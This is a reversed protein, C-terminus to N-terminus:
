CRAAMASAAWTRRRFSRCRPAGGLGWRRRASRRHRTRSCRSTPRPVPPAFRAPPPRGASSTCWWCRRQAGSSDAHRGRGPRPEDDGARHGRLGAEGRPARDVRGDRLVLLADDRGRRRRRGGGVAAAGDARGDGLLRRGGRRVGAAGALEREFAAVEPGLIFKGSALVRAAAARLDDGLRLHQAGLDLFPIRDMTRQDGDQRM